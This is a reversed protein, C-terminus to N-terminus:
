RKDQFYAAVESERGPCALSPANSPTSHIDGAKLPTKPAVSDEGVAFMDSDSRTSSSGSPTGPTHGSFEKEQANGDGDFNCDESISPLEALPETKFLGRHMVRTRRSRVPAQDGTSAREQQLPDPEEKSRARVVADKVCAKLQDSPERLRFAGAPATRRIRDTRRIRAPEDEEKSDAKRRAFSGLDCSQTVLSDREKGDDAAKSGAVDFVVPLDTETRHHYGPVLSVTCKPFLEHSQDKAAKAGLLVSDTSAGTTALVKMAQLRKVVELATKMNDEPLNLMVKKLLTTLCTLLVDQLVAEGVSVSFHTDLKEKIHPPDPFVVSISAKFPPLVGGESGGHEGAM